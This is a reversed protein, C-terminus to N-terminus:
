LNFDIGQITKLGVRDNDIYIRDSQERGEFIFPRIDKTIGIEAFERIKSPLILSPVFGEHYAIDWFISNHFVKTLTEWPLMVEYFREGQYEFEDYTFIKQDLFDSLGHYYKKTLEQLLQSDYVVNENIPDHYKCRLNSYMDYSVCAVSFHVDIGGERSQRKHASMDGCGDRYGKAEVAFMADRGTSNQKFALLDPRRGRIPMGRLRMAAEYNVTFISNDIRKSLFDAIAKGAVNSFQGQETPDSLADPPTSFRGNCFDRRQLYYSYHMFMGVTRMLKQPTPMYGQGAYAFHKALALRSMRETRVSLVGTIDQYEVNINM